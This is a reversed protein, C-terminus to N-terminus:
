SGFEITTDDKKTFTTNDVIGGDEGGTSESESESPTLAGNVIGALGSNGAPLGASGSADGTADVEVGNSCASLTVLLMLVATILALIKKM